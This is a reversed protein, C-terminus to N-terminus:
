AARAIVPEEFKPLGIADVTKVEFYENRAAGITERDIFQKLSDLTDVEWVCDARRGDVSPLYELPKLGKPLRHQEMLAMMRKTCEVWKAPDSINHHIVAHM